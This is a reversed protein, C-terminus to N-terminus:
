PTDGLFEDVGTGGSGGTREWVTGLPEIAPKEYTMPWGAEQFFRLEQKERKMDKDMNSGKSIILGPAM